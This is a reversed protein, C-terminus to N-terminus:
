EAGQSVDGGSHVPETALDPQTDTAPSLPLTPGYRFFYYSATLDNWGLDRPSLDDPRREEDDLVLRPSVCVMSFLAYLGKMKRKNALLQEMPTGFLNQGYILEYVDAQADNPLDFSGDAFALMDPMEFRAQRGCALDHEEFLPARGAPAAKPPVKRAV